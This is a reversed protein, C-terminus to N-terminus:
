MRHHECLSLGQYIKSILQCGVIIHYQIQSLITAALTLTPTLHSVIAIPRPLGHASVPQPQHHHTYQSENYIIRSIEIHM